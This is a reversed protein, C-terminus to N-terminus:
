PSSNTSVNATKSAKAPHGFVVSLRLAPRIRANGARRESERKEEADLELSVDDGSEGRYQLKRRCCARTKSVRISCLLALMFIDNSWCAVFSQSTLASSGIHACM